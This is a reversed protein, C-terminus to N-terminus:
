PADVRLPMVLSLYNDDDTSHFVGPAATGSFELRVTESKIANIADLIYNANFAIELEDGSIQAPVTATNQGVAASVANIALGTPPTIKFRINHASDRAFFNAMKVANALEARDLTATTSAEKPIIQTYDPFTGEILRSVVQTSDFLLLLQNDTFVLSVETDTDPLIRTLESITRAPIIVSKGVEKGTYSIRKEALRYSDTAALILVNKDIKFYIGNLVPRADDLAAAFVVEQLSQRLVKSKIQIKEKSEVKPILPFDSANLGKLIAKHRDSNITAENDHLDISLTQDNNNAVFDVLLRAPLTISGDNTVKAGIWTTVGLELDTASLKLQGAETQLLVNALIPLSSKTTAVRSVIQLGKSFNEQTCRIQM